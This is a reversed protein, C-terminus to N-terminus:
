RDYMPIKEKFDALVDNSEAMVTNSVRLVGCIDHRENMRRDRDIDREIM